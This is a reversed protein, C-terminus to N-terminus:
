YHNYKISFKLGVIFSNIFDTQVFSIESDRIFEKLIVKYNVKLLSYIGVDLPQMMHTSHPRLVVMLIDFCVYYRSIELAFHGSFGNVLLFQQARPGALIPIDLIDKDTPEYTAEYGFHEELTLGKSQFTSSRKFLYINFYKVQNFMIKSNSFGTEAKKYRIGLITNLNAQAQSPKVKFILYLPLYTGM